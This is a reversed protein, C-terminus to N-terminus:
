APKRGPTGGLMAALEALEKALLLYQSRLTADDTAAALSRYEQAKSLCEEVTPLEDM